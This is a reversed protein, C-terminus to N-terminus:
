LYMKSKTDSKKDYKKIKIRMYVLLKRKEDKIYYLM